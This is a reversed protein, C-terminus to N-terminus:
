LLNLEEARRFAARRDNVGLKNYINKTHTRLTNLSVTLERAIEPGSLETGLLRLVELERESLPEILPQTLPTTGESKRFAALLQRVYNSATGHKTAARLLAAMPPGEDVFIRVYGEPEALTLTRELSVLANPIDGLAQYALVQMVLIELMSGMRKQNEAAKLLRELLNISDLITREARNSQYEALLVRSLTIHEFERLYSLEDVITLRLERVWDQAKSLRGQRLYVRTKLAEIPRTEPILRKVYLRKAEDLLDLATDLDGEAEKLRAQALCRRYPWDLLTSHQGLELSEHLHQAASEADGM